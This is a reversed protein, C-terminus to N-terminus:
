RLHSGEEPGGDPRSGAQTNPQTSYDGTAGNKSYDKTPAAPPLPGHAYDGTAESSQNVLAPSGQRQIVRPQGPPVDATRPRAPTVDAGEGEYSTKPLGAPLPGRASEDFSGRPLGAPLPGRASEDFSGKPLGAPLPGRASEDFSGKPLGAPLPGRASEDFSGKPLGAPLPGRTGAALEDNDSPALIVVAATLGAVAILAVALLARLQNFQSRLVVAPHQRAIAEGM